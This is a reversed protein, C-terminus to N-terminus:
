KPTYYPTFLPSFEERTLAKGTDAVEIRVQSDHEPTRLTLPGGAPVAALANVALNQFPRHLLDPYPATRTFTCTLVLEATLTSNPPPLPPTLPTFPTALQGIEDPGRVDIRTDWRGAAVERAGEALEEVPRTIRASIWFSVLLGIFLAAAAVLAAIKLIQRKLLVM